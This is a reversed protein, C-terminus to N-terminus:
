KKFDADASGGYQPDSTTGVSQSNIGPSAEPCFGGGWHAGNTWGMQTTARWCQQVSSTHRATIWIFSHAASPRSSATSTPSNGAWTSPIFSNVVSFCIRDASALSKPYLPLFLLTMFSFDSLFFCDWALGPNWLISNKYSRHESNNWVIHHDSLPVDYPLGTFIPTCLPM